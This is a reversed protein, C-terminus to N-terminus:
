IRVLSKRWAMLTEQIQDFDDNSMPFPVKVVAIGGSPLPIAFERIVQKIQTPHEEDTYSTGRLKEKEGYGEYGIDTM